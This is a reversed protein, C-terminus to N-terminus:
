LSSASAPSLRRLNNALLVLAAGATTIGATMMLMGTLYVMYGSEFPWAIGHDNGQWIAAMGVLIFGLKAPLRERFVLLMIPLMIVLPLSPLVISQRGLVAGGLVGAFLAILLSRRSCKTMCSAALFGVSVAFFLHDMGLLPHRLGATFALAEEFEDIDEMGPPLHHAHLHASTLWIFGLFALLRTTLRLTFPLSM